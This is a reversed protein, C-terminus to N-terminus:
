EIRGEIVIRRMKIANRDDRPGTRYDAEQLVGEERQRRGEERKVEREVGQLREEWEVWQEGQAVVRM